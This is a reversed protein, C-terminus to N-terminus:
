PESGDRNQSHDLRCLVNWFEQSSLKFDLREVIETWRDKRGKALLGLLKDATEAYGNRQYEAYLRDSEENWCSIYKDTAVPSVANQLEILWVLSTNM